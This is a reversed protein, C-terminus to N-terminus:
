ITDAANLIMDFKKPIVNCNVSVSSLIGNYNWFIEFLVKMNGWNWSPFLVTLIEGSTM